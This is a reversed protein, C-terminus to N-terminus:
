KEIKRKRMLDVLVALLLILGLITKQWYVDVGLLNFANTILAMVLVGLFSGFITGEGGNVSCGGIVCAAIVNMEMNQGQTPIAGGM